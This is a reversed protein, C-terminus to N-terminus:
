FSKFSDIDKKFMITYFYGEKLVAQKKLEINKKDLDYGYTSKTEIILNRQPLYFDTIYISEKGKTNTYKVRLFEFEYPENISDLKKMFEFEYSSRYYVKKGMWTTHWGNKYNPCVPTSYNWELIANKIGEGITRLQINNKKFFSHLTNLNVKFENQIQLMSKNKQYYEKLLFQLAEQNAKQLNTSDIKLKLFLEVNHNFKGCMDCLKKKHTLEGCSKCNILKRFHGNIKVHTKIKEEEYEEISNFGFKKICSLKIKDKEEQSKPPKLKNTFSTSCSKSCFNNFRKEYPIENECKKCKKCNADYRKRFDLGKKIAAEQGKGM